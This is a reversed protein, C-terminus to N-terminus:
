SVKDKIFYVITAALVAKILAMKWFPLFGYEMAAPLNIKITLHLIGFIFLVMTAQIMLNLISIFNNKGEKIMGYSIWLGSFVFGYLFGGSSGAFKSWGSTGEAFVPAGVLGLLLYSLILILFSRPKLFAASVFVILSQFTFPIESVSDALNIKMYASVILLLLFIVLRKYQM